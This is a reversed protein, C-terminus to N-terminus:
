KKKLNAIVIIPNSDPSLNAALRKIEPSPDELSECYDLFDQADCFSVMKGDSSIYNPWFVMGGDLDNKFGQKGKEPQNLLKLEGTKKNFVGYVNYNTFNVKTGESYTKVFTFQEPAHNGMFINLFLFADSEFIGRPYIYNHEKNRIKALLCEPTAKYKGFDFIYAARMKMDPGVTFVTDSIAKYTRVNDKFRYTTAVEHTGSFSHKDEKERHVYNPFEKIIESLSSDVRFLMGQYHINLYSVIDAYYINANLRTVGYARYDPPYNPYKIHQILNGDINYLFYKRPSAEMFLQNTGPILDIDRISVFEDPGEGLRGVRCRYKGNEDFVKCSYSGDNIVIAGDELAIQDIKTILVSDNTELPIYEISEAYDSLNLISGTGVVDRVPIVIKDQKEKKNCSCCLICFFYCLFLLSLNHEENKM